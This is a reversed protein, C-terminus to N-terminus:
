LRAWFTPPNDFTKDVTIHQIGNAILRQLRAGCKRCTYREVEGDARALTPGRILGVHPESQTPKGELSLCAVCTSM